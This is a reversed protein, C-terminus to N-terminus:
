SEDCRRPFFPAPNRIKKALDPNPLRASALRPGQNADDRGSRWDPCRHWLIWEVAAVIGAWRRGEVSGTKRHDRRDSLPTMGISAARSEVPRRPRSESECRCEPKAQSSERVVGEVGAWRHVPSVSRLYCSPPSYPLGSTPCADRSRHCRIKHWRQGSQRGPRPAPSWPSSSGLARSGLGSRALFILFGQRNGLLHSSDHSSCSCSTLLFTRHALAWYPCGL